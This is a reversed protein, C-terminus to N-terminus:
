NHFLLRMLLSLTFESLSFESSDCCSDCSSDEDSVEEVPECVSVSVGSSDVVSELASLVDSEFESESASVLVSASDDLSLSLKAADRDLAWCSNSASRM